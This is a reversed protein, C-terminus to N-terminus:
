YRVSPFAAMPWMSISSTALGVTRTYGKSNKKTGVDCAKPLDDRMEPLSMGNAQREIRTLPKAREEGQKPRGRKAAATEVPEKRLPKERAEIATVDRSIHRV